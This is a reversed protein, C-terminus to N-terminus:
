YSRPGRGVPGNIAWGLAHRTAFLLNDEEGIVDRPKILEPANMGLLLLIDSDIFKFPADKLYLLEEVDQETPVDKKIFPWRKKDKPAVCDSTTPRNTNPPESSLSPDHLATPNSAYKVRRDSTCYKSMHGSRLCGLCLNNQRVFGRMNSISRDSFTKCSCIYHDNRQCYVCFKKGSEHGETSASLVKKQRRSSDPKEKPKDKGSINGFLPQKLLAVESSVFDFNVSGHQDLLRKTMRQWKTVDNDDFPTIDKKPLVVKDQGSAIATSIMNQPLSSGEFPLSVVPLNAALAGEDPRATTAEPRSTVISNVFVQSLEQIAAPADDPIDALCDEIEKRKKTDAGLSGSPPRTTKDPFGSRDPSRAIPM